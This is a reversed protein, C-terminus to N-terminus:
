HISDAKWYFKGSLPRNRGNYGKKGSIRHCSPTYRDIEAMIGRRTVSDTAINEVIQIEIGKCSNKAAEARAWIAAGVVYAVLVVLIVWGLIKKVM